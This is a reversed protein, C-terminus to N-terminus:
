SFIFLGSTLVLGMGLSLWGHIAGSQNNRKPINGTPMQTRNASM